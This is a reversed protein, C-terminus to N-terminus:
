NTFTMAFVNGDEDVVIWGQRGFTSWSDYKKLEVFAESTLWWDANTPPASYRPTADPPSKLSDTWTKCDDPSLKIWVYSQFDSPGLQGDGIRIEILRADAIGTLEGTKSRIIRSVAAVREQTSGTVESVTKKPKRSRHSTPQCGMMGFLVTLVVLSFCCASRDLLKSDKM